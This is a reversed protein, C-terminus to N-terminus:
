YTLPCGFYKNKILPFLYIKKEFFCRLSYFFGEIDSKLNTPSFKKKPPPNPDFAMVNLTKTEQKASALAPKPM